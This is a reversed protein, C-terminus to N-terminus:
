WRHSLVLPTQSSGHSGPSHSNSGSPSMWTSTKIETGETQCSGDRVFNLCVGALKKLMELEACPEGERGPSLASGRGQPGEGSPGEMDSGHRLVRREM